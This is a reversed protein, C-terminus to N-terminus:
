VVAIHLPAGQQTRKTMMRQDVKFLVITTTPFGVIYM